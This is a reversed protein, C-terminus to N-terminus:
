LMNLIEVQHPANRELATSRHTLCLFFLATGSLRDRWHFRVLDPWLLGAGQSYDYRRSPPMLSPFHAAPPSMPAAARRTPKSLINEISYSSPAKSETDRPILSFPQKQTPPPYPLAGHPKLNMMPRLSPMPRDLLYSPPEMIKSSFSEGTESYQNWRSKHQSSCALM